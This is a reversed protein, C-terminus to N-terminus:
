FGDSDEEEDLNSVKDDEQEEQDPENMNLSGNINATEAEMTDENDEEVDEAEEDEEEEDEEEEDGEDGGEQDDAQGERPVANASSKRAKASSSGADSSPKRKKSAATSTEETEKAKASNKKSKQIAQYAALEEQLRSAMDGYEIDELCKLVHAGTIIKHGAALAVENAASAIYNIFLTTSKSMALKANSQINTNEPLVQKIIRTIIAKPLENDEISSTSM